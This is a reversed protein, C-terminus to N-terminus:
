SCATRARRSSSRCTRSRRPTGAFDRREHVAAGDISVRVSVATGVTLYRGGRALTV